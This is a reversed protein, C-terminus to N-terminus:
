TFTVIVIIVVILIVVLSYAQLKNVRLPRPGHRGPHRRPQLPGDGPVPPGEFVVIM